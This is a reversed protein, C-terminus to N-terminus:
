EYSRWSESANIHMPTLTLLNTAPEFTATFGSTVLVAGSSYTSPRFLKLKSSITLASLFGADTQVFNTATVTGSLPDAPVDFTRIAAIFSEDAGAFYVHDERDIILDSMGNEGSLIMHSEGPDIVSDMNLNVLAFVQGTFGTGEVTGMFIRGLSDFDFGGNFDFGTFYAGGPPRFAPAIVPNRVVLLEGQGNGDATQVLLAGFPVGSANAGPAVRAQAGTFGSPPGALIPAILETIEGPDNFDGDAPNFDRASLLTNSTIGSGPAGDNDVIVLQNAAIKAIGGVSGFPGAAVHAISHDILGVRVIEMDHFDGIAVYIFDEDFPDPALAGAFPRLLPISDAAYGPPVSTFQLTQSHGASTPLLLGICAVASILSNYYKLM